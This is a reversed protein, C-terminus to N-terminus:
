GPVEQNIINLIKLIIEVSVCFSDPKERHDHGQHCQHVICHLFTSSLHDIILSQFERTCTWMEANLM